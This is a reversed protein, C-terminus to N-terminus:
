SSSARFPPRKLTNIIYIFEDSLNQQELFVFQDSDLDKSYNPRSLLLYTVLKFFFLRCKKFVYKSLEETM